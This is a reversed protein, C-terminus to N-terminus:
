WAQGRRKNIFQRYWPRTPDARAPEGANQIFRFDCDLRGLEGRFRPMERAVEFGEPLAGFQRVWEAAMDAHVIFVLPECPEDDTM